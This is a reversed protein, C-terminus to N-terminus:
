ESQRTVMPYLLFVIRVQFNPDDLNVEALEYELSGVSAITDGESALLGERILLNTLLLHGLHHAAFQSEVGYKSTL